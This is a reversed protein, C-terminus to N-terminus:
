GVLKNRVDEMKGNRGRKRPNQERGPYIIQSNQFHNQNEFVTTVEKAEYM